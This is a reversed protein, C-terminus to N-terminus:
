AKFTNFLIPRGHVSKSKCFGSRNCGIYISFFNFIFDFDFDFDTCMAQDMLFIVWRRTRDEKERDRMEGGSEAGEAM